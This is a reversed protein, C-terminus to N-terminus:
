QVFRAVGDGIFDFFGLQQLELLTAPTGALYKGPVTVGAIMVVLKADRLSATKM